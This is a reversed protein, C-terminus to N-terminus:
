PLVGAGAVGGAPVACPYLPGWSFGGTTTRRCLQIQGAPPWGPVQDSGPYASGPDLLVRLLIGWAADDADALIMEVVSRARGPQDTIGAALIGAEGHGSYRHYVTWQFGYRGNRRDAFAQHRAM